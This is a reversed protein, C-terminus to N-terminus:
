SEAEAQEMLAHSTIAYWEGSDRMIQLGTNLMDLFAEGNENDNHVMVTLPHVTSLNPNLKVHDRLGLRAIADDAVQTDIAVIDVDASMLLQFCDTVSNPTVYTVFPEVLGALDLHARSSGEPRCIVTGAFDKPSVSEDYGSGSRAFFGDVIDYFSESFRYNLCRDQETSSLQAMASCDPQAWPFSADFALTPMLADLHADWDNVFKITYPRDPEARLMATQVLLTFFGREPLSEDTFPAYGNGTVLMIPADAHDTAAARDKATESNIGAAIEASAVDALDGVKQPEQALRAGASSDDASSDDTLVAAGQSAQANAGDNTGDGVLADALAAISARAADQDNGDATLTLATISTTVSPAQLVLEDGTQVQATSAQKAGQSTASTEANEVTVADGSESGATPTANTATNLASQQPAPTQQELCPVALAMGIKIMHPNKGIADANQAYILKWDNREDREFYKRGIKRLTDGPAVTHTVCIQSTADATSTQASVPATLLSCAMAPVILPTFISSKHGNPAM